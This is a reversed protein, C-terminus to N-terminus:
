KKDWDYIVETTVIKMYEQEISEYNNLIENTLNEFPYVKYNKYNSTCYTYLLKYDLNEFVVDGDKVVIDMGVM